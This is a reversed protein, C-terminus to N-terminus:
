VNIVIDSVSGGVPTVVQRCSWCYVGQPGYHLGGLWKTNTYTLSLATDKSCRDCKIKTDQYRTLVKLEISKRILDVPETELFEKKGSDKSYLKYYSINDYYLKDETPWLLDFFQREEFDGALRLPIIERGDIYIASRLFLCGSQHSTMDWCILTKDLEDLKQELDKTIAEQESSQYFNPEFLSKIYRKPNYPEFKYGNCEKIHQM